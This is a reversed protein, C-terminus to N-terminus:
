PQNVGQNLLLRLNGNSTALLAAVSNGTATFSADGNLQGLSNRMAKVQPLLEKLQLRRAHLDAKGTM